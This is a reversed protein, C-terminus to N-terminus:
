TFTDLDDTTFPDQFSRQMLRNKVLHRSYIACQLLWLCMCIWCSTEAITYRDYYQDHKVPQESRSQYWLWNSGQTASCSSISVKEQDAASKVSDCWHFLGVTLTCASVLTVFTSVVSSALLVKLWMQYVVRILTRSRILYYLHYVCMVTGFFVSILLNVATIFTCISVEGGYAICSIGSTMNMNAISCNAKGYLVCTGGFDQRVLGSSISITLGCALIIFYLSTQLLLWGEFHMWDM